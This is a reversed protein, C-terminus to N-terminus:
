GRMVSASPSFGAPLAFPVPCLPGRNLGSLATLPNKARARRAPVIKVRRQNPAVLSRLEHRAARLFLRWCRGHLTLPCLRLYAYIQLAPMYRDRVLPRLMEIEGQPLFHHTARVSAEWVDVLAPFLQSTARIIQNM